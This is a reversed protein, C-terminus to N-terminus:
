NYKRKLFWEDDNFTVGLSIKVFKESIPTGQGSIGANFGLNVHSIKRQFVFPMGFGMTVGYVTIQENNIVRPDLHYYAGYRYSVRELFNDFSKYNPRYFGGASIKHSTRLDGKIDGATDNYYQSWFSASYNIGFASKEGKYYTLGLGFEAPLKGKGKVTDYRITDVTPISSGVYQIQRDNIIGNTNFGTASNAHLGLSIRKTPTTKDKEIDEKNLIKSYLLGANWLYGNINYDNSNIDNYAFEEGPFFIQREYSIKGFVYGLNLGFSIDKYKISNGWMFKYSGGSGIYNRNFVGINPLSDRSRINYGVNSHPMLTFSMGLKYPKKVGDYIENIPNRLPFAISLYELNGGWIKTTSNKDAIWSRKVYIGIDYATANLYSYSAPNVINIHYGDIFSAGLGGMQRLHNFNNDTLDGIGYRSYPSNVQASISFTLIMVILFCVTQKIHM